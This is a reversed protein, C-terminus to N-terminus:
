DGITNLDTIVKPEENHRAEWVEGRLSPFEEQLKCRLRIVSQPNTIDKNVFRKIFNFSSYKEPTRGLLKIDQHWLNAILKFDDDRLYPHKELLKQVREKDTLIEM